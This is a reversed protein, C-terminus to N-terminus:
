VFSNEWIILLCHLVVTTFVIVSSIKWFWVDHLVHFIVFVFLDSFIYLIKFKFVDWVKKLKLMQWKWTPKAAKQETKRYFPRSWIAYHYQCVTSLFLKTISTTRSNTTFLHCIEIHSLETWFFLWSKRCHLSTARLFLDTLWSTRGNVM